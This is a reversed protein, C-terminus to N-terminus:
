GISCVGTSEFRISWASVPEVIRRDTSKETHFQVMDMDLMLRTEKGAFFAIKTREFALVFIKKKKASKKKRKTFRAFYFPQNYQIVAATNHYASFTSM